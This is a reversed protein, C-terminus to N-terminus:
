AGPDAVEAALPACLDILLGAPGQVIASRLGFDMDVPGHLITAGAQRAREAAADVNPVREHLTLGAVPDSPVPASASLWLKLVGTDLEAFNDFLATVPWGIARHLFDAAAGVDPVIVSVASVGMAVLTGPECDAILAQHREAV